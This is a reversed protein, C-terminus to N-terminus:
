DIEIDFTAAFRRINEVAKKKAVDPRMPTGNIVFERFQAELQDVADTMCMGVILEVADPYAQAYADLSAFRTAVPM